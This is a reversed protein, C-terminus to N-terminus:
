LLRDEPVALFRLHPNTLPTGVVAIDSSRGWFGDLSQDAANGNGLVSWPDWANVWLTRQDADACVEEPVARPGMPELSLRGRTRHALEELIPRQVRDLFLEQFEPGGYPNFAGAGVGATMLRRFGLSLAVNCAKTWLRLYAAFLAHEDFRGPREYKFAVADPQHPSDFAYGVLHLVHRVGRDAGRGGRVRAPTYVALNPAQPEYVGFRYGFARELADADYQPPRLGRRPAAGVAINTPERRTALERAQEQDAGEPYFVAAASLREEDAASALAWEPFAFGPRYCARLAAAM